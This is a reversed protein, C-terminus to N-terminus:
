YNNIIIDGGGSNYSTQETNGGATSTQATSSTPQPPPPPPTDKTETKAAAPKDDKDYWLLDHEKLILQDVAIVGAIGGIIKWKHTSIGEIVAKGWSQERKGEANTGALLDVGVMAGSGDPAVEVAVPAPEQGYAMGGMGGIMLAVMVLKKM